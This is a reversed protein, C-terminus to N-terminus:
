VVEELQLWGMAGRWCCLCVSFAGKRTVKKVIDLADRGNFLLYDKGIQVLIYSCGGARCWNYLFLAQETKLGFNIRTKDRVPWSDLYKLEVWVVRGTDKLLWITDPIGSGTLPSEIRVVKGRVNKKFQIKLAAESGM